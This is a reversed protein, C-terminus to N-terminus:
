FVFVFADNAILVSPKVKSLVQNTDVPILKCIIVQDLFLLLLTKFGDSNTIKRCLDSFSSM